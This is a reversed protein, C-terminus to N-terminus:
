TARLHGAFYSPKSSSPAPPRSRSTPRIITRLAEEISDSPVGHNIAVLADYLRDELVVAGYDVRETGRGSPSASTLDPPFAM